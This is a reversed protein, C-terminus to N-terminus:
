SWSEPKFYAVISNAPRFPGSSAVTLVVPICKRKPGLLNPEEETNEKDPIGTRSATQKVYSTKGAAVTGM